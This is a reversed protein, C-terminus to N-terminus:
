IFIEKYIKKVDINNITLKTKGEFITELIAEDPSTLDVSEPIGSDHAVKKDTPKFVLKAPINALLEKSTKPSLYDTVMVLYFGFKKGRTIIQYLNDELEASSFYAVQNFANILILVKSFGEQTEAKSRREIENISWKLATISREPDVIVPTLLHPIHNPLTIDGRNGDIVILRMDDPSYKSLTTGLISNLLDVAGTFQSGIILLNGYKELNLNVEKKNEDLGLKIEFDASKNITYKTKKWVVPSEEFEIKAPKPEKKPIVTQGDRNKHPILIER